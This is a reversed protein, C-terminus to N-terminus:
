AKRSAVVQKNVVKISGPGVIGEALDRLAKVLKGIKPEDAMLFEPKIKSVDVIEFTWNDVLHVGKAKGAEPTVVVAVTEAARTELTEARQEAALRAEENRRATERDRAEQEAKVRLREREANAQAEADGKRKAEAAAERLARQEAEAKDRELKALRDRERQEAEAKQRREAAEAELRRRERDAAEQARRQAERREQEVQNAWSVIQADCAKKADELADLPADFLDMIKRKAEDLPRTLDVRQATLEKIRTNIRQRAQQAEVNLEPSTVRFARAAALMTQADSVMVQSPRPISLEVINDSM